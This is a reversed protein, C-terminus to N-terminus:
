LAFEQKEGDVAAVDREETIVRLIRKLMANRREEREAHRERTLKFREVADGTAVVGAEALAEHTDIRDRLSSVESMLAVLMMMVADVDTPQLYAPRSQGRAYRRRPQRPENHAM